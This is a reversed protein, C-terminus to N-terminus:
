IKLPLTKLLVRNRLKDMNILNLTRVIFNLTEPGLKELEDEGIIEVIRLLIMGTEENQILLQIDYPIDLNPEYLADYKNSIKVGDSKLSELLITDKVSVIYKKDKKIKKLIDNTEKEAKTIDMENLFYKLLKSQHIIKNNYKIRKQKNDKALLNNEYFTSYNSPVEEFKIQELIKSLKDSFADGIGDEVFSEKLKLSLDLKEETNLTLILRQYLLARGKYSPLIKYTDKVTLLQDINFQFRKYLNFLEQEAYNKDHTAKEIIKIKEVDELDVLDVSDLLNNSSLYTWILKPTKENPSYNFDPDTRHSLHFDLINEESIEKDNTTEYGMLLNFKKEFFVEDFGLERKLDYILQAEERRDENILCYIKFKYLYDDEFNEIKNFISCANKLDSISLYYNVYHKILLSNYPVNKNKILYKKILNLDNNKILYESKFKLFDEVTIDKQPFYSNTLLAIDLIHKSDNSLDIDSIKDLIKKLREGNSSSWMDITLGNREPDYLGVLSIDSSLLNENEIINNKNNSKNNSDDILSTVEDEVLIESNIEQESVDSTKKELKWIDVPETSLVNLNLQFIFLFFILIYSKNLLKLIKM